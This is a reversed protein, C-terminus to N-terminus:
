GLGYEWPFTKAAADFKRTIWLMFIPTLWPWAKLGGSTTRGFELHAGYEVGDGLRWRLYGDPEWHISARLAGTDVGPPGGSPAPSTGFSQKVDGVMETVVVRGFQDLRAPFQRKFHNLGSNDATWKINM